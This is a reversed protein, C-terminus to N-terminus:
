RKQGYSKFAYVTINDFLNLYIPIKGLRNGRVLAFGWKAIVDQQIQRALHFLYRITVWKGKRDVSEVRLGVETLLRTLNNKSFYFFHQPPIFFHWYSGQLKALLSDTDGTNIVLLGNPKLLAAIRSLVRRPNGLHEIVDFLTIVDFSTKKFKAREVSACKVRDPFRRRAISIAYSSVDIGYVDFGAKQAELMFLGTACGIDLLKGSKRFRKIGEVYSKMNKVETQSDGEYDLYGARDQSGTFFKKNYYSRIFDVYSGAFALSYLGCSTCRFIGWGHKEFAKKPSQYGCLHCAHDQSRSM